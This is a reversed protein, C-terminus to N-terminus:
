YKHNFYFLFMHLIKYNDRLSFMHPKYFMLFVKLKELKSYKFRNLYRFFIEYSAIENDRTFNDSASNHHSYIKILRDLWNRTINGSSLHTILIDHLVYNQKKKSVDLSIEIDYGHFDLNKDNFKFQNWINKTMALFVGDTIMVEETHQLRHSHVEKQKTIQDIHLRRYDNFSWWGVPLVSKYSTGAVALVGPNKLTNFHAILKDGWDATQFLIDEHIFLFYDYSAKSAGKNYAECIGMLGPNDIKIIEHVFNEGITNKINEHLNKYYDEQYSSIIISLM